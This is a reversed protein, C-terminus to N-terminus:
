SIRKLYDVPEGMDLVFFKEGKGISGSQLILQAAESISMFFRQLNTITLPGGSRIQNKFPLSLVELAELLM